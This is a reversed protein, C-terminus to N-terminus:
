STVRETVNIDESFPAGVRSSMSETVTKLSFSLWVDSVGVGKGEDLESGEKM